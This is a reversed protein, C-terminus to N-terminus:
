FNCAQEDSFDKCDFISDCIQSPYICQGDDCMAGFKQCNFEFILFKVGKCNIEDSGDKCDYIQNCM